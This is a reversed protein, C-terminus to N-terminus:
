WGRFGVCVCVCVCVCVGSTQMQTGANVSDQTVRNEGIEILCVPITLESLEMVGDLESRERNMGEACM